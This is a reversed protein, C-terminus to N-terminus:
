IGEPWTEPFGRLDKLTPISHVASTKDVFIFGDYRKAMVSPVYNRGHNEFRPDYVVGVARHGYRRAGLVSKRVASDFIMSYRPSNLKRSVEHCFYEFSEPLAKPLPTVKEPGDWAPSALVTGHYTGFGVLSVQDVGYKERALGGLNVYGDELMDTAHYDGIHSNHAWVICKSNASYRNLLVELTEMMHRDRVNWSEAGGTIMSRYYEEANKVIRANQQANFLDGNTAGIDELRTRLLKTLLGVVESRCGENFQTLFKAYAKENRQFPEFCSYCDVADKKLDGNITGAYNKVIDLSEFLSYVDLGYFGAQYSQLREILTAVEDNAWMWTPWRNFRRMIEKASGGQSSHIYQNLRQCDPWDGEVAIFDFGHDRILIESIQSRLSYFEASGHTAEGLMVIKSKSIHRILENLAGENHIPLAIQEIERIVSQMPPEVMEKIPSKQQLWDISFEVVQELAGPEEFLHTAGPILVLNSNPLIEAAKQNLGIVQHDEAGVILLTPVRVQPLYPEALDPRGGRSIVAFVNRHIKAAAGLAAAAGTSAGFFAIPIETDSLHHLTAETAKLVRRILLETDFVNRRDSSEEETLLDALLTGFGVKNLEEAVFQNRPSHRSSGSGHAFIVLGKMDEVTKLDAKLASKGDHFEIEKENRSIPIENELLRLVEEDSVQDFDVYWQGVAYFPEPAELYVVEDAIKKLQHLTSLPGIPVAVIIKKAKLHKLLHTAAFLTAGTAVGDDVVILTRGAVDSMKSSHRLTQSQRKLELSKRAIIKNVDAREVGLQEILEQNLWPKGSEGLAGIALEPQTPAGIKKVLLLDLPANLKRAVEYAVPVGGRPVAMVIPNENRYQMLKAALKKGAERRDEFYQM